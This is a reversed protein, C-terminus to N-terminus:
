VQSCGLPSHPMVRLGVRGVSLNVGPELWGSDYATAYGFGGDQIWIMLGALAPDVSQMDCCRWIGVHSEKHEDMRQIIISSIERKGSCGSLRCDKQMLHGCTWLQCKLAFAGFVGTNEGAMTVVFANQHNNVVARGHIKHGDLFTGWSSSDSVRVEDANREICCHRRSIKKNEDINVSGNRAIHRTIVQNDRNRGISISQGANFLHVLKTGVQLTLANGPTSPPTGPLHVPVVVSSHASESKVPRWNSKYLELQVESGCAAIEKIVSRINDTPSVRHVLKDLGDLTSNAPYDNAHGQNDRIENKINISLSQIADQARTEPPYVCIEREDSELCCLEDGLKYVIYLCYVAIGERRPKYAISLKRSHGPRLHWLEKTMGVVRPGDYSQHEAYVRVNTLKESGARLTINFTDDMGVVSFDANDYFLEVDADAADAPSKQVVAPPDVPEQESREVDSPIEDLTPASATSDPSELAAGCYDCCFGEPVSRNCEKCVVKM